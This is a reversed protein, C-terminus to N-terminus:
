TTQTISGKVFGRLQVVDLDAHRSVVGRRDVTQADTGGVEEEGGEESLGTERFNWPVIRSVHLGM